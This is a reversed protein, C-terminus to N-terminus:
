ADQQTRPMAVMNRKMAEVRWVAVMILWHTIVDGCRDENLVLGWLCAVVVDSGKPAIVRRRGCCWAVGHGRGWGSPM